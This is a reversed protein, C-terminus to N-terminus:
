IGRARALLSVVTARTSDDMEDDDEDDEEDYEKKPPAPAAVPAPAAAVPAPEPPNKANDLNVKAQEVSVSLPVYQMQVLPEDGGPVPPLGEKARVNNITMFGSRIGTEYAKFRTDIEMRFLSELDFEIHQDNSLEFAKEFALEIAELHYQLCGQYYTRAMQESNRYSVKTLDGLMFAPVRYVRAVDESSWRLQEILQADTANITLPKYELGDGLIATRGFNGRSYNEEWQDKLREATVKGIKGPATLV